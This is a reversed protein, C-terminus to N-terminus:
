PRRREELLGLLGERTLSDVSQPNEILPAVDRKLAPWDVTEVRRAVLDPWTAKKPMPGRWGTQALANTLLELNPPPWTRDALYWTLDYFDRGKPYPRALVAHLKGALLSARDHHQVNLLLHRRIVTTRLGAGAPPRTDVEIKISLKQGRHESIGLEYPLGPLRVWASEVTRRVDVAVDVAYGEAGLGHRISDGYDVLSYGPGPRELSFDLGESFRDLGYLLRLATGGLFALPIMARSQQLFGLVRAQLYERAMLGRRRPDPQAELLERVVAKM